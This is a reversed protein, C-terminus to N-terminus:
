GMAVLSNDGARTRELARSLDSHVEFVGALGAARLIRLFRRNGTVLRLRGHRARVRNRARCLVGLGACDIFSMPRLDLVLDPQPGSALIDLLAALPIATVLDIEGHLAVITTGDVTRVAPSPALRTHNESM